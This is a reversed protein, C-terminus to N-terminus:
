KLAERAATVYAGSVDKVFKVHTTVAATVFDIQSSAAVKEEIEVLSAVAQAFADLGTLGASKSSELLKDNFSQIQAVVQETTAADVLPLSPIATKTATAM